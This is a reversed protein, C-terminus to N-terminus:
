QTTEVRGGMGSRPPGKPNALTADDGRSYIRKKPEPNGRMFDNLASHDEEIVAALGNTTIILLVM